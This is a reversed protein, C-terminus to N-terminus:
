IKEWDYNRLMVTTTFLRRVVQDTLVGAGAQLEKDLVTFDQGALEPLNDQTTRVLLGIRVSVIQDDTAIDGAHVYEGAFPIGDERSSAGDVSADIGYLVQFSEVGSVLASGTTGTDNSGECFLEDGNRVEYINTILQITGVTGDGECDLDGYFEFSLRDNDGALDADDESIDPTSGGYHTASGLPAINDTIIGASKNGDSDKLGIKRADRAIYELSFRGSEQVESMARQLQFTQQNTSFLEVAAVVILSGLLLSVMLEVLSFGQQMVPRNM